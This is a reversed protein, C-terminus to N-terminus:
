RWLGTKKSSVIPRMALRSVFHKLPLASASLLSQIVICISPVFLLCVTLITIIIAIRTRYATMVVHELIKGLLDIRKLHTLTPLPLRELDESTAGFADNMVRLMRRAYRSNLFALTVYLTTDATDALHVTRGTDIFIYGAPLLRVGLDCGSM